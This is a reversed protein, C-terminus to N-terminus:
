NKAKKQGGSSNRTTIASESQRIEHSALKNAGNRLRDIEAQLREIIDDKSLQKPGTDSSSGIQVASPSTDMGMQQQNQGVARGYAKM